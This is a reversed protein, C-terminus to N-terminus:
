LDPVGIRQDAWLAPLLHADDRDNVLAEDDFFDQAV